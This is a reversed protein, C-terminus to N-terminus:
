IKILKKIEKRTNALKEVQSKVSEKKDDFITTVALGNIDSVAPETSLMQSISQLKDAGQAQVGGYERATDRHVSSANAGYDQQSGLESAIKGMSYQALEHLEKLKQLKRDKRQKRIRQRQDKMDKQGKQGDEEQRM